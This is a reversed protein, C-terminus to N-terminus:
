LEVDTYVVFHDVGCTWNGDMVICKVGESM